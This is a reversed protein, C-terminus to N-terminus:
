SKKETKKDKKLYSMLRNGDSLQCRDAYFCGGYQGCNEPSPALDMGVVGQRRIDVVRRADAAVGAILEQFYPDAARFLTEVPQAGCPKRPGTEPNSAAYYVWRARVEPIRFETIAWVAYIIAQADTALQAPTLVWNLSSTTKHDIVLDPPEFCDVYGIMHVNHMWETKISVEIQLDKSPIPLWGKQIGQKAVQGAPLDSPPEADRLWGELEKHVASGFQQKETSPAKINEVYEFGIIRQCRRFKNIQTASLNM